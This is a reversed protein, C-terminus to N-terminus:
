WSSQSQPQSCATAPCTFALTVIRASLSRLCPDLVQAAWAVPVHLRFLDSARRRMKLYVARAVKASVLM